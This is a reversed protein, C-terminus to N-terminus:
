RGLEEILSLFAVPRLGSLPHDGSPILDPALKKLLDM